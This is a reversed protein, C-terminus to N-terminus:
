GCTIRPLSYRILYPTDDADFVKVYVGSRGIHKIRVDSGPIRVLVLQSPKEVNIGALLLGTGDFFSRVDFSAAWLCPGSGFLAPVVPVSDAFSIYGLYLREAESRQSESM